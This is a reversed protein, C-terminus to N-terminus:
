FHQQLEGYEAESIRRGAGKRLRRPVRSQRKVRPALFKKRSVTRHARQSVVKAPPTRFAASDRAMKERCRRHDIGRLRSGCSPCVSVKRKKVLMEGRPNDGGCQSCKVWQLQDLPTVLLGFLQGRQEVSLDELFMAEVM